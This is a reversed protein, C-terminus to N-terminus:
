GGPRVGQSWLERTQIVWFTAFEVILAAELWLILHAFRVDALRLVVVVVLTLVMAVGVAAYGTTLSRRMLSADGGRARGVGLANLGMVVVLCIFMAIASFDHAWRVFFDRSWAFAGTAVLLLVVGIGAGITSDLKWDGAAHSRWANWLTWALAAYGVALVAFVNNSINDGIAALDTAAGTRCTGLAPTPVLPVVFAMMGALNLLVDERETNGKLVVMCVGIAILVGVFVARVPTYYYSSVSTEWCGPIRTLGERLVAVGLLAVLFVMSLRLYRYTKIVNDGAPTAERITM